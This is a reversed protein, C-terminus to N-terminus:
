RGSPSSITRSLSQLHWRNEPRGCLQEVKGLLVWTDFPKKLLGSMGTATTYDAIGSVVLVPVSAIKPDNQRIQLFEQGCMVPMQLDLIILQPPTILSLIRLADKGNCAGICRYGEFELLQLIGERIGQDDDVVLIHNHRM